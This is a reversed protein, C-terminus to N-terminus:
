AVHPPKSRRFEISHRGFAHRPSHNRTFVCAVFESSSAARTSRLRKPTDEAFSSAAPTSTPIDQVTPMDPNQYRAGRYLGVVTHGHISRFFSPRYRANQLSTDFPSRMHSRELGSDSNTYWRNTAITDVTTFRRGVGDYSSSIRFISKLRTGELTAQPAIRVASSNPRHTRCSHPSNIACDINCSNGM